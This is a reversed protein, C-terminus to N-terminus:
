PLAPRGGCDKIATETGKDILGMLANLQADTPEKSTLAQKAIATYMAAVDARGDAKAAAAIVKADAGVKVDAPSVVGKSPEDGQAWSADAAAKLACYTPVATPTSSCATSVGVVSVAVAALALSKMIRSM